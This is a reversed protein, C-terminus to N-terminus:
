VKKVIINFDVGAVPTKEWKGARYTYTGGNLIGISFAPLPGNFDDVFEISVLIKGKVTLNSASLDVNVRNKGAPISSYIEEKVINEGPIEGNIKYINVKFNISKAVANDVGFNLTILQHYKSGVNMKVGIQQGKNISFRANASGTKPHNGIRKTVDQAHIMGFTFFILASLVILQRILLKIM